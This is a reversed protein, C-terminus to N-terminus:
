APRATVCAVLSSRRTTTTLSTASFGRATLFAGVREATALARAPEPPEYFLFLAGDPRLSRRLREVAESSSDVWFLNVNVAFIKDFRQGALNVDELASILFAAKGTAVNDANRQEALRVMAASRDIATIKGRTLRECVKSVAVGRGCGVELLHDAPDVAMIRM